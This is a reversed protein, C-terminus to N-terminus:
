KKTSGNTLGKIYQKFTYVTSDLGYLNIQSWALYCLWVVVFLTVELM